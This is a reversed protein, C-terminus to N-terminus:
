WPMARSIACVSCSPAALAMSAPTRFRACSPFKAGAIAAAGGLHPGPQRRGGGRNRAAGPELAVGSASTGRHGAFCGAEDRAPIVVSFLKLRAANPTPETGPEHTFCRPKSIRGAPRALLHNRTQAPFECVSNVPQWGSVGPARSRRSYRRCRGPLRGHPYHEKMKRLDSYYCIHDGIRNQDVYEYVQKRREAAGGDCVSRSDLVLEGRRRRHQLGRRM